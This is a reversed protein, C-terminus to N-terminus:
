NIGGVRMYDEMEEVCIEGFRLDTMDQVCMLMPIMSPPCLIEVVVEGVLVKFNDTTSMIGREDFGDIGWYLSIAVNINLMALHTSKTYRAMSTPMNDIM